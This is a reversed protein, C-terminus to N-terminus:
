SWRRYVVICEEEPVDRIVLKEEGVWKDFDFLSIGCGTEVAAEYETVLDEDVRDPHLYSSPFLVRM